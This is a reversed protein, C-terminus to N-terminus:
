EGKGSALGQARFAADRAGPGPRLRVGPGEGDTFEVGASEFVARIASLQFEDLPPKGGREARRVAASTVIQARKAVQWPSWGLLGRAARIQEGSIMGLADEASLGGAGACAPCAVGAATVKLDKTSGSWGCNCRWARLYRGESAPGYREADRAKQDAAAIAARERPTLRRKHEEPESM